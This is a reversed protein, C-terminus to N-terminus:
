LPVADACSRHADRWRGYAACSAESDCLPSHATHTAVPQPVSGATIARNRGPAYSLHGGNLALQVLGIVLAGLVALGAIKGLM